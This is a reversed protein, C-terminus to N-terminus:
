GHVTIKGQVTLDSDAGSPGVMITYEGEDIVWSGGADGDWHSLDAINLPLTVRKGGDKAISVRQFRKLEKVPRYPAVDTPTKPGKVFMMVIEDGDVAGTNKVDVTINVVNTKSSALCPVQLNSYSFTTYSLGHGFPFVLSVPTQKAALMDYYRYGFFYGMPTDNTTTKFSPMDAEKPWAVAMKGSFNRDGFLLKGFALGARQGPYGAWITAQNTNTITSDSLWPVNVISGSEIIIATPKGIGLIDHVLKEQLGPLALSTRDGKSQLSYEEGEDGASLGVVVVIFDAGSAGTVCAATDTCAVSTVTARSGAVTQIGAFPGISKAPDANVRSSGRDGLNVDTAFHMTTGTTPPETSTTVKVPLDMGVVAINKLSSQIPLVPTGATGNTLLVASKIESEEALTLHNKTPDSSDNGTISDGSLSTVATGLGYPDTTYVSGIRFKQELIRGAADDIQGQTIQGNTLLSPLQSYNLSWPVELDLGAQIAELAQATATSQDPKTQYGPMAWWDTLVLGKFDFGNPAPGKLIDTLLHKNQTCKKGNIMNYAAMVCGAGGEQVVMGFHRAYMERLTQEDMIANQKSRNYEVNNAAYHKPCATVHQQIGAALASAMRGTHYVDEGYTEQSRGWYPHRLINMCPALMMNNKSGMTEDGLAEGVQVELDVDWSAARASAEPYSTAYGHPPNDPQRAPDGAALNVGHGADRYRYGRVTKSGVAVDQSREIDAYVSSDHTPPDPIGYMQDIKNQPTMQDLLDKVGQPRVYTYGPRSPESPM